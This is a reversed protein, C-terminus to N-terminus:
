DFLGRVSLEFVVDSRGKVRVNGVYYKGKKLSTVSNVGTLNAFVLNDKADYINYTIAEPAVGATIFQIQWNLRRIYTPMYGILEFEPSSQIITGKSRMNKSDPNPVLRVIVRALPDSGYAPLLQFSETRWWPQYAPGRPSSQGSNSGGWHGAFRMWENGPAPAYRSGVYVVDGWTQWRPGDPSTADKDEHVNAHHPHSAHGWKSAYVVPHTGEVLEPKDFGGDQSPRHRAFYVDEISLNEPSTGSLLVTIHEWDGEHDGIDASETILNVLRDIRLPMHGAQFAGNFPYFFPYQIIAGGPRPVFNASQRAYVRNNKDPPSGKKIDSNAIGLYYVEAADNSFRALEQQTVKGRPLILADKGEQRMKLEVHPFYQDINLPFYNEDKHFRVEPAFKKILADRQAPTFKMSQPVQAVLINTALVSLIHIGQIIKM